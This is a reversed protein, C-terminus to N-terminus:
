EAVSRATGGICSVGLSGGLSPATWHAGFECNGQCDQQGGSSRKQQCDQVLAWVQPFGDAKEGSTCEEDDHQSQQLCHEVTRLRRGVPKVDQWAERKSKLNLREAHQKADNCRTEPDDGREVGDAVHASVILRVLCAEVDAERDGDGRRHTNGKRGVHECEEDEIFHQCKRSIGQHRM